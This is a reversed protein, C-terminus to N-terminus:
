AAGPITSNGNAADLLGKKSLHGIGGAGESGRILPLVDAVKHIQDNGSPAVAVDVIGM